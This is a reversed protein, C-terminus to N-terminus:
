SATQMSLQLSRRSPEHWPVLGLKRRATDELVKFYADLHASESWKQQFAQYGRDGMEDRLVPDTRLREMAVLLEAPGQYLFGGRGQEVIETLGGQNRAIVPTRQVYSEVVIMGLTEYCVSPVLLAIAHRYFNRLEEQPLSGLLRVNAMGKVQRKLEAEYTGTGAILLDAHPYQAFIPLLTDIGKIKELRGVFLFYPRPHPSNGTSPKEEEPVFHPVVTMLPEFGRRHHMQQTFRTPAIFTDVSRVCEELLHTYRWWQPPRRFKLTCRLCDPKECLRENNKWLVHMPCVLWHEHTTYLKIFDPYDPELKLVQPGLLSVNHYHIVDFKKSYLVELIRDTKPWTTGLQQALLPSLFGLRSQLSHVTVNPHNPFQQRPERGGMLRYSDLCHIVDVEHGRSALANSLRYLYIADGGFSYPPYFISLFCFRLPRAMEGWKM